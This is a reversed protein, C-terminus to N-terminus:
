PRLCYEGEELVLEIDEEPHAEAYEKSCYSDWDDVVYIDEEMKCLHQVPRPCDHEAWIIVSMGQEEPSMKNILDKLEKWTM